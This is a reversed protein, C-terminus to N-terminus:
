LKSEIKINSHYGTIKVNLQPFFDKFKKTLNEQYIKTKNHEEVFDLIDEVQITELSKIEVDYVDQNDNVPCYCVMQFSYTNM